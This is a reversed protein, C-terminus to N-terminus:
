INILKIILLAQEFIHFKKLYTFNISNAMTYIIPLVFSSLHKTITAKIFDFKQLMNMVWRGHTTHMNHAHKCM